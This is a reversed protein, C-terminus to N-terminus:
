DSRQVKASLILALLGFMIGASADAAVYLFGPKGYHPWLVALAIPALVVFAAGTFRIAGLHKRVDCALLWLAVGIAGYLASVSRALYEILMGAPLDGLGLERHARAMWSRPMVVAALALAMVAGTVRLLIKLLREATWAPPHQGMETTQNQDTM